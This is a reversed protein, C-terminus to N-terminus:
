GRLAGLAPPNTELSPAPRGDYVLLNAVDEPAVGAYQAALLMGRVLVLHCMHLSWSFGMPLTALCVYLMDQDDVKCEVGDEDMCHSVGLEAASFSFPLSFLSALEVWRFRYFSDVLDVACIHCAFM